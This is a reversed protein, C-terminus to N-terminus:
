LGAANLRSELEEIKVIAEQLAATLLPVLKSQDIGQYIPNGNEDVEDKQGSVCEPVVDQAEHALFGDLTPSELDSTQVDTSLPDNATDSQNAIFNFRVPRLQKVRSIGDTIGTINEKLRYDSSTIYSTASGSTEISGVVGNSNEFRIHTRSDSVLAKTTIAGKSSNSVPILLAAASTYSSYNLIYVDGHINLGGTKTQTTSSTDLFYSSDNGDLLDSDAAKGTTSLKGDLATQLGDVNSIIHNHSDDAIVISNYTGSVDGGFTTSTTLATSAPQYYSGEQGDLKDADLGSITTTQSITLNGDIRMDGLVDLKYQPNTIGIGVDGLSTTTIVTGGLGVNLRNTTIIGSVNADIFTPNVLTPNTSFVLSGSGTEDTIASALNFSSPSALFTDVNAGLGSVGTSIPLGTADQLDFAPTADASGLSVSVGGFSVSSNDLASNPISTLSAGSGSFTNATIIGTANVGSVSIVDPLGITVTASESGSGSVEVEGATGSITAVYNGTTDDGLAVSNPQITAALSVNGTGDFAIASAVVDGTIQFTRPTELATATDANGTITGVFGNTASIIGTVNLDTSIGVTSNSVEVFSGLQSLERNNAM